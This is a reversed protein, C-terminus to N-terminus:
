APPRAAPPPAPDKWHHWVGAAPRVAPLDQRVRPVPVPTPVVAVAVAVAPPAAPRLPDLCRPRRFWPYRHLPRYREAVRPVAVVPDVEPPLPPAAWPM